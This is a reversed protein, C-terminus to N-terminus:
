RPMAWINRFRVPHGHDQLMLPGYGPEGGAMGAATPGDVEVAVDCGRWRVIAHLALLQSTFTSDRVPCVM